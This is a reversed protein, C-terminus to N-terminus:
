YALAVIIASMAVLSVLLNSIRILILKTSFQEFLVFGLVPPVVFGLWNWFGVIAGQAVTKAGAYQIAHALVFAMIINMIVDIAMAKGMGAKMQATTLGTEQQWVKGFLPMYWIAGIIQKAIVAAVVPLIGITLEQM